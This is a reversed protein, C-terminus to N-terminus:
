LWSLLPKLFKNLSIMFTAYLVLYVRCFIDSFRSCLVSLKLRGSFIIYIKFVVVFLVLALDTSICFFTIAFRALIFYLIYSFERKGWCTNFEPCETSLLDKVNTLCTIFEVFFLHPGIGKLDKFYKYLYGNIYCIRLHVEEVLFFPSTTYLLINNKHEGRLHDLSSQFM